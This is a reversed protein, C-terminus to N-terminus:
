QKELLCADNETRGIECYVGTGSCFLVSFPVRSVAKAFNNKAETLVNAPLQRLENLTDPQLKFLVFDQGARVAWNATFPFGTSSINLPKNRKTFDPLTNKYIDVAVKEAFRVSAASFADKDPDESDYCKDDFEFYVRHIIAPGSGYNQLKFSFDDVDAFMALLPQISIEKYKLDNQQSVYTLGLSCLAIVMSCVAVVMSANRAIFSFCRKINKM